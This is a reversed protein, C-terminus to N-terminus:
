NFKNMAKETGEKLATKIAQNAEKLAESIIKEEEASFKKLVFKEVDLFKKKEISCDKGWRLGLRSLFTQGPPYIGIRFRIFNKTKLSNIISQVGRHGASGRQQSIKLVGLPLDIDDHIVWINEPKIKFFSALASVAQGSKNMFTTPKALIIKESSYKIEKIEAQFSEKLTFKTSKAASLAFNSVFRFGINHRTKEYKKGPNGLGVILKGGSASGSEASMRKSKM